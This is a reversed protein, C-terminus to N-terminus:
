PAAPDDSPTPPPQDKKAAGFFFSAALNILGTIVVGQSLTAFLPVNSLRPNWDLMGFIMATLLFLGISFWGHSDPLKFSSM